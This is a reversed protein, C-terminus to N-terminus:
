KIRRQILNLIRTNNEVAKKLQGNTKVKDYLLIATVFAPFGFNNLIELILEAM